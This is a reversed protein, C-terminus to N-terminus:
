PAFRSVLLQLKALHITGGNVKRRVSKWDGLDCSAMIGKNAWFWAAAQAAIIPQVARDPDSVTGHGFAAYNARGTLQIFGRGRYRWGDGSAADGNGNRNAYVFNAIKEPQRAYETALEETPFRTPWTQILGETGYNLNEIKPTFDGTEIAVTAAMGIQSARSAIGQAQMADLLLGWNAVVNQAPCQTASAVEAPTLDNSM